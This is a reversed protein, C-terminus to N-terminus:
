WGFQLVAAPHSCARGDDRPKAKRAARSATVKGPQDGDPANEQGEGSGLDITDGEAAPASDAAGEAPEPAESGAAESGAAEALGADAAAAAAGTTEAPAWSSGTGAPTAWPDDKPDARLSKVAAVAGAVFGGLMLANRVRHKKKPTAVADGKLVAAADSGRAAAEERAAAAQTTAANIADVLKPLVEEVLLDRAADIKPSVVEVAQEVKPAAADVGKQAPPAAWEKAAHVKPGAWDRTTVAAHGVAPGVKEIIQDKVHAVQATTSTPQEQVAEQVKDKRSKRSM